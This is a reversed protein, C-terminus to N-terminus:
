GFFHLTRTLKSAHAAVPVWWPYQVAPEWPGEQRLPTDLVDIAAVTKEELRAANYFLLRDGVALSAPRTLLPAATGGEAIGTSWTPRPLAPVANLRADAVIEEITEFFQPQEDQGPVSMVKVGVPM